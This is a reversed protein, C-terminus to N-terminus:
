VFFSSQILGQTAADWGYQQKMPLIAVAMNVRDM